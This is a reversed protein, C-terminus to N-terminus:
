SNTISLSNANNIFMLGGTLVSSNSYYAVLNSLEINLDISNIHFAGGENMSIM